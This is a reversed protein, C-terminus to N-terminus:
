HSPASALHAVGGLKECVFSGNEYELISVSCNKVPPVERMRELGYGLAEALAARIPTYHTFVAVREGPYTEAIRKLESVVREYLEAVSEGDPIEAKGIDTKWLGFSDAYDRLLSEYTKEEWQGARIERMGDSPIVPLGLAQALPEATQRARQLSSSVIRQIGESQLADVCLKAEELGIETLPIDWHGAFAAAANAQSYGHRVLYIRTKM